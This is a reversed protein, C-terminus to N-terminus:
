RSQNTWKGFVQRHHPPSAIAVKSNPDKITSDEPYNHILQKIRNTFGHEAAGGDFLRRAYSVCDAFDAPEETLAFNRLSELKSLVGGETRLKLIFDPDTMYSIVDSPKTEFEGTFESKAWILTHDINYPFTHM